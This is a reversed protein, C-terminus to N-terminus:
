YGLWSCHSVVGLCRRRCRIAIASPIRLCSYTQNSTSTFQRQHSISCRWHALPSRLWYYHQSCDQSLCRHFFQHRPQQQLLNEEMQTFSSASLEILLSSRGSSSRPISSVPRESYKYVLGCLLVAYTPILYICAVMIGVSFVMNM